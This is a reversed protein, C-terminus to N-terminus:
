YPPPLCGPLPPGMPGSEHTQMGLRHLHKWRCPFWFWPDLGVTGGQRPRRSGGLYLYRRGWVEELNPHMGVVEEGSM